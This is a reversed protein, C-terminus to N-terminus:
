KGKNYERLFKEDELAKIMVPLLGANELEKGFENLPGLWQGPCKFEIMAENLATDSLKKAYEQAYIRFQDNGLSLINAVIKRPPVFIFVIKMILLQVAVYIVRIVHKALEALAM